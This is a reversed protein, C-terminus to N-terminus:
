IIANQQELSIAVGAPKWAMRLFPAATATVFFGLRQYLRQARANNVEVSLSVGKGLDRASSQVGEILVSGLGRGRAEPLLSIDVIHVQTPTQSLYLRGIPRDEHEVIAFDQHAYTAYHRDQAQFQTALFPTRMAAPWECIGPETERVAVFLRELFPKDSDTAARLVLGAQVWQLPCSTTIPLDSSM